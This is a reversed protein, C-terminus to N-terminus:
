SRDSQRAGLLPPSTDPQGWDMDDEILWTQHEDSEEGGIGGGLPGAASRPSGSRTAGAASPNADRGIVADAVAAGRGTVGGSGAAGSGAAGTSARGSTTAPNGAISTNATGSAGRVAAAVGGATVGAAGALVGAGPTATTPTTVGPRVDATTGGADAGVLGGDAGLLATPAADNAHPAGSGIPTADPGDSPTHGTGPAGHRVVGTGASTIATISPDSWGPLGAPPATPTQPWRTGSAVSYDGALETVLAIMRQHARRREAEDQQQGLTAGVVGGVATGVFGFASGATAGAAAGALLSNNDATQAPSEAKRKAEALPGAMLQLGTSMSTFERNLQTVFEVVTAIRRQYEDGAAGQWGGGLSRLDAELAASIEIITDRAQSWRAALSEVQEPDGSQVMRFLTAHDIAAYNTAVTDPM